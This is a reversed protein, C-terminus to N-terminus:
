RTTSTSGCRPSATGSRPSASRRGTGEIAVVAPDLDFALDYTLVDYGREIGEPSLPGRGTSARALVSELARARKFRGEVHEARPRPRRAEDREPLARAGFGAAGLLAALLFRPRLRPAQM